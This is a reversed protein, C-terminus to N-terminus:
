SRPPIKAVIADVTRRLEKAFKNPDTDVAAVGQGRWLLKHTAPDIVDIIVTGQTYQVVDVYQRPFGRWDYGYDFTRVDLVPAASAYYAVALDASGPSYVYGKAEFARRIEDRIAEYTISNVLMPDNAALPSGGRPPPTPLILFTSRGAFIADPAAITRVEINHSCAGLALAFAFAPVCRFQSQRYRSAPNRSM